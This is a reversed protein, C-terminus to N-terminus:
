INRQWYRRRCSLRKKIEPKLEEQQKLRVEEPSLDEDKQGRLTTKKPPRLALQEEEFNDQSEDIVVPDEELDLTSEDVIDPEAQDFIDQVFEETNNQLKPPTLNEIAM